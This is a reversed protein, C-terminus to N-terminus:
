SVTPGSDGGTTSSRRCTSICGTAGSNSISTSGQQCAALIAQEQNLEVRYIKPPEYPKKQNM